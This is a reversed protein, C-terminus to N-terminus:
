YAMFAISATRLSTKRQLKPLYVTALLTEMSGMGPHLRTLSPKLTSESRYLRKHNTM